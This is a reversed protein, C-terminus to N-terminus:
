AGYQGPGSAGFVDVLEVGQLCFHSVSARDELREKTAHSRAGCGDRDLAAGLDMLTPFYIVHTNFSTSALNLMAVNKAQLLAKRM